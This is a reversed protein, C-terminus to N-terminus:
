RSLDIDRVDRSKRSCFKPDQSTRYALLMWFFFPSPFLSLALPTGRGMTVARDERFEIKEQLGEDGLEVTSGQEM